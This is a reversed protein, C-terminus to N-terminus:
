ETLERGLLDEDRKVENLKFSNGFLVLIYPVTVFNSITTFEKLIYQQRPMNIMPDVGRTM